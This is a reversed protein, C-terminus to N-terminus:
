PSTKEAQVWVDVATKFAQFQTATFHFQHNSGKAPDPEVYIGSTDPAVLNVRSLVQACATTLQPTGKAANYGDIAMSAIASPDGKGAHCSACITFQTSAAMFKDIQKCGGAAPPTGSDPKFAGAVKFHIELKDTPVFGVFIASGGAVLQTAGGAVNDKEAFYRDIPDPV